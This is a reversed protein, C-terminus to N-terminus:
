LRIACPTQFLLLSGTLRDRKLKDTLVTEDIRRRNVLLSIM